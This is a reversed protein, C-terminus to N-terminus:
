QGKGTDLIEKPDIFDDKTLGSQSEPIVNKTTYPLVGTVIKESSYSTSIDPPREMYYYLDMFVENMTSM